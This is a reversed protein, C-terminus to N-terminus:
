EKLIFEGCSDNEKVTIHEERGDNKNIPPYRKCFGKESDTRDFYKCNKCKPNDPM